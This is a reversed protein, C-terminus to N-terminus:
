GSCKGPYLLLGQEYKNHRHTIDTAKITLKTKGKVCVRCFKEAKAVRPRRLCGVSEERVLTKGKESSQIGIAADSRIEQDGGRGSGVVGGGGPHRLLVQLGLQLLLQLPVLDLQPVRRVSAGVLLWSRLM